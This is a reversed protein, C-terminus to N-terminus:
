RGRVTIGVERESEGIVIYVFPTFDVFYFSKINLVLYGPLCTGQAVRRTVTTPANGFGVSGAAGRSRGHRDWASYNVLEIIM